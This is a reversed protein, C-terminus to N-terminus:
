LNNEASLKEFLWGRAKLWDRRVTSQEIQLVDGIEADSLGGFYRLVVVDAQRERFKRLVEIADSVDITQQAFHIDESNPTSDEELDFKEIGGGRKASCRTRAEDLIVQRIANCALATFHRDDTVEFVASQSLKLYLENILATTSLTDGVRSIRRERRAISRLEFQLRIFLDSLKETKM